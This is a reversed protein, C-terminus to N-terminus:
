WCNSKYWTGNKSAFFHKLKFAEEEQLPVLNSFRRGHPVAKTLTEYSCKSKNNVAVAPIEFPGDTKLSALDFRSLGAPIVVEDWTANSKSLVPIVLGSLM